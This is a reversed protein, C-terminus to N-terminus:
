YSEVNSKMKLLAITRAKTYEIEGRSLTDLIDKPLNLLPLRHSRFSDPTLRGVIAFIHEVIEWQNRVVNNTLEAGQKQLHLM